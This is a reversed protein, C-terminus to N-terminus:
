LWDVDLACVGNLARCEICSRTVVMLVICSMLIVIVVKLINCRGVEGSSRGSGTTREFSSTRSANEAPFGTFDTGVFRGSVCM